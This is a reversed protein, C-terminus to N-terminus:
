YVTSDGAKEGGSDVSPDGFGLAGMGEADKVVVGTGDSIAGCRLGAGKEGTTDAFGTPDTENARAVAAATPV